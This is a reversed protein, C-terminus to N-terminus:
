RTVPRFPFTTRPSKRDAHSHSSPRPLPSVVHKILVQPGSAPALAARLLQFGGAVAAAGVGSVAILVGWVLAERGSFHACEALSYLLAIACGCLGVLAVTAAGMAWRWGAQGVHQARRLRRARRPHKAGVQEEGGIGEPLNHLCLCM